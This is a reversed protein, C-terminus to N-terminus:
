TRGAMGVCPPRSRGDCRMAGTPHSMALWAGLLLLGSLNASCGAAKARRFEAAFGAVLRHYPVGAPIAGSTQDLGHALDEAAFVATSPDAAAIDFTHAVRGGQRCCWPGGADTLCPVARELADKLDSAQQALRLGFQRMPRKGGHDLRVQRELCAGRPAKHSHGAVKPKCVTGMPM